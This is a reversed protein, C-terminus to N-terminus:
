LQLFVQPLVAAKEVSTNKTRNASISKRKRKIKANKSLTNVATKRMNSKSAQLGKRM